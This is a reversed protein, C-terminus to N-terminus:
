RLIKGNRTRVRLITLDYHSAVARQFIHGVPPTHLVVELAGCRVLSTGMVAEDVSAQLRQTCATYAMARVVGVRNARGETTLGVAWAATRAIKEHFGELGQDCAEQSCGLPGRDLVM